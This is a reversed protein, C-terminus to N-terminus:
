RADRPGGGQPPPIVIQKSPDLGVPADPRVPPEAWGPGGFRLFSIRLAGSDMARKLWRRAIATLLMRTPPFILALGVADTILGPLILLFGGFRALPAVGRARLVTMGLAATGLVVAFTELFGFAQGFRVLLILDVIPGVIFVLLPLMRSNGADGLRRDPVWVDTRPDWIAAM